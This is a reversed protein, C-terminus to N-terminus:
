EGGNPDRLRNPQFLRKGPAFISIYSSSTGTNSVPPLASNLDVVSGQSELGKMDVLSQLIVVFNSEAADFHGNVIM